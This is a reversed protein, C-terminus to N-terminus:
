TEMNELFKIPLKHTVKIKDMKYREETLRLILNPKSHHHTYGTGVDLCYDEKYKDSSYLATSM